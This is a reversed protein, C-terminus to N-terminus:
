HVIRVRDGDRLYGAGATVVVTGDPLPTRLAARDEALFAVTVKRQHAVPPKGSVTFVTVANHGGDVLAGLPVYSLTSQGAGPQIRARGILGMPLSGTALPTAPPSSTGASGSDLEIEVPFAGSRPDAAAARQSVRGSFSRGPLADFSLRAADGVHVNVYDRDPLQVKLVEGSRDNSVVLVPQGPAAPEHPELLRQLVRGDRPARIVAHRANFQAAQLQARAVAEASILDDLQERTVVDQAFLGRGRRLDRVAKDHAERAQTVSADVQAPELQALVQGAHVTDGARVAISRIIGGVNFALEAQDRMALVGDAVVAPQAPGSEVAAVEVTRPPVPQEAPQPRGCGSVALVALVALM